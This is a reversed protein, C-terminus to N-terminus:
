IFPSQGDAETALFCVNLCSQWCHQLSSLTWFLHLILGGMLLMEKPDTHGLSLVHLQTPKNYRSGLVMSPKPPFSGCAGELRPLLFGLLTISAQWYCLVLSNLQEPLWLLAQHFGSLCTVGWAPKSLQMSGGTKPSSEWGPCRNWVQQGM